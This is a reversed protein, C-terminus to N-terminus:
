DISRWTRFKGPLIGVKEKMDEMNRVNNLTGM